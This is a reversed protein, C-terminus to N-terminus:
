NEIPSVIIVCQGPYVIVEVLGVKEKLWRKQIKYSVKQLPTLKESAIEQELRATTNAIETPSAM